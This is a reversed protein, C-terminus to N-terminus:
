EYIRTRAASILKQRELQAERDLKEHELSKSLDNLIQIHQRSDLESPVNGRWLKFFWSYDEDGPKWGRIFIAYPEVSLANGRFAGDVIVNFKSKGAQLRLMAPPTSRYEDGGRLSHTIPDGGHEGLLDRASNFAEEALRKEDEGQATAEVVGNKNDVKAVRVIVARPRAAEIATAEVAFAARLKRWFEGSELEGPKPRRGKIEASM